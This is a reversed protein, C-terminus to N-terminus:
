WDDDDKEDDSHSVKSKRAALASALAGALGGQADGGGSAGSASPPPPAAAEGGPVMAASRDRKESDSVKKLRAGGRIDALLGDRGPVAQKPVAAATDAGVGTEAARPPPMPPPPPPPAANELPPPVRFRPRPPSPERPPSPSPSPLRQVAPAGAKRRSPPPAPPPGRGTSGTHQPSVRAADAVPPPPPPARAARQQEEAQAAQTAKNQELYSKIFASHEHIQDETIGMQLLDQLVAQVAPDNLDIDSIARSRSPSNQAPSHIEVGRPPIISQPPGQPASHKHSSFLGGLRSKKGEPAAAQQHYAGVHQAPGSAFPKSRTNKHANKEREDMKKKFQKAEKEDAFSLGALCDELEFTHFFTRDQNYQFTDYIEQDWVVGRNSPSVDVMKLWFTNGVLDNALVAAGQMGTYTWKNRNPYAVYLKAVAVAHIKNASKPVTRKVTQKDEENLISPM